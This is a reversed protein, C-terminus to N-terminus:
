TDATAIRYECNWTILGELYFLMVEFVFHLKSTPEELMIDHSSRNTPQSRRFQVGDKERGRPLM